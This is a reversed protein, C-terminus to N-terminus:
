RAARKTPAPKAPAAADWGGAPAAVQMAEEPQPEVTFTQVALKAAALSQPDLRKALDDRKRGADADGQAAALSFWKYSEALNQDVGIGRAYLIGLNFQSDAVGREAAKRFWEAAAKYNAGRSGGDAELVALNHMAKASGRDAAQTYYRRAADTDRKMGLGKENLTGLRFIAPTVGAQAARTYWKAAEEFNVPVSRGEAFRMAVEYAAAADGKLAASRLAAGGIAEPLKEDAAVAITAYKVPASAPATRPSSLAGTVDDGASAITTNAPPMAAAVPTAPAPAALSQREVPTPSMMSPAVSKTPAPAPKAAPPATDDDDAASPAAQPAPASLHAPTSSGGDLLDMTMKFTGLVIVVVSAGVLLSRIKSSFGSGPKGDGGTPKPADPKSKDAKVKDAKAKDAKAKDGSTSAAAAAQAARRAAAIFNTASAQEPKPAGLESIANESAAIRESPTAVRGLPRTGPELPHDPPLDSKIEPRAAIQPETSAPALIDHIAKPTAVPPAFERPAADFSTAAPNPMEPRPSPPAPRPEPAAAVPQTRLPEPAPPMVAVPPAARATRLDGEIMALRDVVHGLTNHVAELSDQTHRDTESQSFRMDSLERKITDVFAPDLGAAPQPRDFRSFSEQQRELMRLIDHLGEEVRDFNGAGRQNAAAEMRELLYGVRQELHAFASESDHGVPMKDLRESLARVAGELHESPAPAPQRERSELAATLASIRDELAAFSLSHDDSRSLQDIKGALAQVNDSLQALTENSAVNSVIGRLAGIANELQQVTSPDDSNRVIMDIKGGLNRIAEDFGALQEAPTLSRLADYIEGLAREINAILQDDSGSSRTQDIRQALSKIEGELSEIAKRPMADTITQRIEALDARFAAISQEVADPRQQMADIQTTIKRLQQELNSFDPGPPPAMAPSPAYSMAPAIPPAFTAPQRPPMRDRPADLESQRASIEAIARDLASPDLPPSTHYVQAAAREVRETSPPAPPVEQVPAAPQPESIRALRADLRSIADNLQRAVAPEGPKAAAPRSLQEIQRAISDLRQHIEAVEHADRDAMATRAAPAPPQSRFQDQRPPERRPQDDGFQPSPGDGLQTGLWDALSLGARKAAAEARERVAPELGDVSWSVRNM